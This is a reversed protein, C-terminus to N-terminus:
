KLVKLLDPLKTVAAPVSQPGTAQAAAAQVDEPAIWIFGM